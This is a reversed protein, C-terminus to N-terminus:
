VPGRQAASETNIFELAVVGEGPLADISPFTRFHRGMMYGERWFPYPLGRMKAEANRGFFGPEREGYVVMQRPEGLMAFIRERLSALDYFRQFFYRGDADPSGLGYEDYDRYQDYGNAACPLTLLLAGGPKLLRRVAELAAREDAIHEFVSISTIADFRGDGPDLNEVAEGRLRCKGSIDLASVWAETVALDAADPNVLVAREVESRRAYCLPFLRPSSIDLYASVRGRRKLANWTWDFEFYRTSDMPYLALRSAEALRRTGGKAVLRAAVGLADRHFRMGPTRIATAAVTYAPLLVLSALAHTAMTLPTPRRFDVRHVLRRPLYGPREGKRTGAEGNTNVNPESNPTRPNVTRHEVNATEALM